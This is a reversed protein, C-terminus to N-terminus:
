FKEDMFSPGRSFGFTAGRSAGLGLPRKCVTCRFEEGDKAMRVVKDSGDRCSPCYPGEKSGSAALRFYAGVTEDWQLEERIRLKDKLASCEERLRVNEEAINACEVQVAALKQKLESNRLNDAATVADKLAEYWGM